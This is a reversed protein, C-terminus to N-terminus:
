ILNEQLPLFDKDEKKLYLSGFMTDIAPGNWQLNLRALQVNEKVKKKFTISGVLIWEEQSSRIHHAHSEFPQWHPKLILQFNDDHKNAYLAYSLLIVSSTIMYKM